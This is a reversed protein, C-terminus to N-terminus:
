YMSRMATSPSAVWGPAPTTQALPALARQVETRDYGQRNSMMVEAVPRTTRPAQHYYRVPELEPIPAHVAVAQRSRSPPLTARAMALEPPQYVAVPQNTPVYLPVPSPGADTYVPGVFSSSASSAYAMQQAPEAYHQVAPRYAQGSLVEAPRTGRRDRSSRTATRNDRNCGSVMVGFALVSALIGLLLSKYPM